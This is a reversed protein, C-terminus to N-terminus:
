TILLIRRLFSANSDCVRVFCDHFHMRLIPGALSPALSLIATMEDRIIVEAKPCTTQYFGVQLGQADSSGLLLLVLALNLLIKSPVMSAMWLPFHLSLLKISPHILAQVDWTIYALARLRPFTGVFIWSANCPLKKMKVKKKKIFNNYYGQGHAFVVMLIVMYFTWCSLPLEQLLLGYFLKLEILQALHNIKFVFSFWHQM